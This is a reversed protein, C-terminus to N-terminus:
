VCRSTYLLCSFKWARLLTPNYCPGIYPRQTRWSQEWSSCISPSKLACLWQVGIHSLPFYNPKSVVLKRWVSLSMPHSALAGTSNSRNSIWYKHRWWRLSEARRLAPIATSYHRSPSDRDILLRVDNEWASIYMAPRVYDSQNLNVYQIPVQVAWAELNVSCKKYTM